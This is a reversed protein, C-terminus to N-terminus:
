LNVNEMTITREPMLIYNKKRKDWKYYNTTVCNGIYEYKICIDNIWKNSTGDWKLNEQELVRNKDDYQYNYKM